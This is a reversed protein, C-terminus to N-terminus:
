SQQRKRDGMEGVVARKRRAWVLLVDVIEDTVPGCRKKRGSPCSFEKRQLEVFVFLDDGGGDLRGSAPQWDKSADSIARTQRDFEGPPRLVGAGIAYQQQRWIQDLGLLFSKVAMDGRDAAGDADADDDVM